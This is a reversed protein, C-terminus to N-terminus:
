KANLVSFVLDELYQKVYSNIENSDKFDTLRPLNAAFFSQFHAMEIMTSALSHSYKYSPNLVNLLDAIRGVLDKYPKFLNDRNYTSVEKTLYVKSSEAIVVQYLAKKDFDTSDFPSEPNEVLIEIIKIIKEHSDQLNNL